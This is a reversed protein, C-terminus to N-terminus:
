EDGLFPFSIKLIPYVRFIRLSYGMKYVKLSCLLSFGLLNSLCGILLSFIISLLCAYFTFFVVSYQLYAIFFKDPNIAFELFFFISYNFRLCFFEVVSTILIFFKNWILGVILVYFTLLRDFYGSFRLSL